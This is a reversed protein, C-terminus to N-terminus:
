APITDKCRGPLTPLWLPWSDLFIISRTTASPLDTHDTHGLHTQGESMGFKDRILKQILLHPLSLLLLLPVHQLPNFPPMAVLVIATLVQFSLAYSSM